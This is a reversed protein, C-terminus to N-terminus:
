MGSGARYGSDRLAERLFERSRAVRMKLASIGVELMSSIEEYSLDEVHKLLFAERHTDPLRGLAAAVIEGFERRVIEKETASRTDAIESEIELSVDRRRHEKLYDHCRNRVIRFVWAGFREADRCSALSAYAKVLGDQVLDAAADADHVMGLAYRFLRAQYRQVLWRYDEREGSLVSRVLEADDRERSPTSANPLSM